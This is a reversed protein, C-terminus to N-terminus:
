IQRPVLGKPALMEHSEHPMTRATVGILSKCRRRELIWGPRMRPGFPVKAVLLRRLPVLPRETWPMQAPQLMRTSEYTIAVGLLPLGFLIFDVPVGFLYIPKVTAAEGAATADANAAFVLSMCSRRAHSRRGGM